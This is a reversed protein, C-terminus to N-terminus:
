YVMKTKISVDVSIMDVLSVSLIILYFLSLIRHEKVKCTLYTPLQSWTANSTSQEAAAGETSGGKLSLTDGHAWPPRYIM